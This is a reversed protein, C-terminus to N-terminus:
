NIWERKTSSGNNLYSFFAEDCSKWSFIGDEALCCCENLADMSGWLRIDHIDFDGCYAIIRTLRFMESIIEDKSMRNSYFAEKFFLRLRDCVVFEDLPRDACYDHLLSITKEVNSSCFALELVIDSLPDESELCSSLWEDYSEEYGLMLLYKYFFADEFKLYNVEDIWATYM